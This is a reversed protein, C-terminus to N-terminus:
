VPESSLDISGNPILRPGALTGFQVATPTRAENVRESGLPIRCAIKVGSDPKSEISLDGGLIEARELMGVVGLSGKRRAMALTSEREFGVGDDQIEVRLWQSAVEISVWANDARSHKVCNTLAEQVIRYVHIEVEQHFRAPGIEDHFHIEM